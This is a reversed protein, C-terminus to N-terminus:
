SPELAQPQGVLESVQAFMCKGGGGALAFFFFSLFGFQKYNVRYAASAAHADQTHFVGVQYWSRYLYQVKIQGFM